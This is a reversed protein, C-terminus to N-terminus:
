LSSMNDVMNVAWIDVPRAVQKDESDRTQAYSKKLDELMTGKESLILDEFYGWPTGKNKQLNYRKCYHIILAAIEINKYKCVRWAKEYRDDKTLIGMKEALKFFEKFAAAKEANAQAAIRSRGMIENLISRYKVESFRPLEKDVNKMVSTETPIDSSNLFHLYVKAMLRTARAAVDIIDEGAYLSIWFPWYTRNNANNTLQFRRTFDLSPFTNNLVLCIENRLRAWESDFIHIQEEQNGGLILGRCGYYIGYSADDFDFEIMFEYRRTKDSSELFTEGAPGVKLKYARHHGSKIGHYTDDRVFDEVSEMRDLEDVFTKLYNAYLVDHLRDETEYDRDPVSTTADREIM